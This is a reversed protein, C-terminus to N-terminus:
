WAVLSAIWRASAPLGLTFSTIAPALVALCGNLGLYPSVAPPPHNEHACQEQMEVSRGTGAHEVADHREVRAGISFIQAGAKHPKEAM